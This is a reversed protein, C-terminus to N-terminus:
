QAKRPLHLTTFALLIQGNVLWLSCNTYPISNTDLWQMMAFYRDVKQTFTDAVVQYNFFFIGIEL